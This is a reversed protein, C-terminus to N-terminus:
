DKWEAVANKLWDAQHDSKPVTQGRVHGIAALADAVPVGLRALVGAAMM